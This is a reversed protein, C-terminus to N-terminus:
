PIFGSRSANLIKDDLFGTIIINIIGYFIEINYISYMFMCAETHIIYIYAYEIAIVNNYYSNSLKINLLEYM